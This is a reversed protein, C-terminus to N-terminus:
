RWRAAGAGRPRVPPQATSEWTLDSTNGSTVTTPSASLAVVPAPNTVVVEASQSASGGAGSCTLTYRTTATLPETSLSGNIPQNGSWGGSATCSQANSASWELTTSQGMPVTSPNSALAISPKAAAHRFRSALQTLAAAQGGCAALAALAAVICSGACGNRSTMGPRALRDVAVALSM